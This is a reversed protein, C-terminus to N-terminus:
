AADRLSKRFAERNERSVYSRSGIKTIRLKGDSVLKYGTSVGIGNEQCYTRFPKFDPEISQNM